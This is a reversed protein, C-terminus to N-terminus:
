WHVDIVYRWPFSKGERALVLGSARYAASTSFVVLEPVSHNQLVSCGQIYRFGIDIQQRRYREFTSVSM